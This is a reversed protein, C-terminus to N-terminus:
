EGEKEGNKKKKAKSKKKKKALLLNEGATNFGTTPTTLKIPDGISEDALSMHKFSLSEKELYDRDVKAMAFGVSGLLFTLAVLSVTSAKLFNKM